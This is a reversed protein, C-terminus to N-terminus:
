ESFANQSIKREQNKGEPTPALESQEAAHKVARGVSEIGFGLDVFQVIISWLTRLLETEQDESLNMDRVYDRYDDADFTMVPFGTSDVIQIAQTEDDSPSADIMEKPIHSPNKVMSKETRQGKKSTEAQGQNHGTFRFM